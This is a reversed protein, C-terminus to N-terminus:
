RFVGFGHKREMVERYRKEREEETLRPLNLKEVIKKMRQANFTKVAKEPVIKGVVKSKRILKVEKGQEIAKALDKSKTRLETFTIYQM